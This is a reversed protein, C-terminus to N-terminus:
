DWRVRSRRCSLALTGNRPATKDARVALLWPIAGQGSETLGSIVMGNAFLAAAYASLPRHMSTFTMGPGDREIRDTYRRPELYPQSFRFQATHLTAEDRASIFPHVVALCLRGGPRLIRGIESVAGEFDDIDLLSMCAVVLEASHGAFPLAAADALVVPMAACSAAAARALTPSQDTGIVRYGLRLLERGARGEGCGLDIVPGPGPPPLLQRM